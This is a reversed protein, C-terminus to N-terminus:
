LAGSFPAQNQSMVSARNIASGSIDHYWQKSGVLRSIDLTCQIELAYHNLICDKKISLCLMHVKLWM